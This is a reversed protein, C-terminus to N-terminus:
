EEIVEPRFSATPMKAVMIGELLNEELGLHRHHLDIHGSPLGNSRVLLSPIRVGLM